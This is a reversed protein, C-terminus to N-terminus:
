DRQMNTFILEIATAMEREERWHSRHMYSDTNPFSTPASSPNKAFVHLRTIASWSWTRLLKLYEGLEVFHLFSIKKLGVLLRNSLFEHKVKVYNVGGGHSRIKNYAAKFECEWYVYEVSRKRFGGGRVCLKLGAHWLYHFCMQQTYFQKCVSVCGRKPSYGSRDSDFKEAHTSARRFSYCDIFCFPERQETM